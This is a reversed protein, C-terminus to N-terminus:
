RLDTRPPSIIQICPTLRRALTVWNSAFDADFSSGTSDLCEYARGPAPLREAGDAGSLAAAGRDRDGAAGVWDLGLEADGGM